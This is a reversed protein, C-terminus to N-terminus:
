PRWFRRKFSALAVMGSGLLVITMPEPVPAPFETTKVWAGIDPDALGDFSYRGRGLATWFDESEGDWTSREIWPAHYNGIYNTNDTLTSTIGWSGYYGGWDQAEYTVGFLAADDVSKVSNFLSEVQIKSALEWSNVGGYSATNLSDIADLVGDYTKNSFQEMDAIWVEKTETDRILSVGESEFSMLTAFAASPIVCIAFLFLMYLRTKPNRM